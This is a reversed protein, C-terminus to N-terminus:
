DQSWKGQRPWFKDDGEDDAERVVHSALARLASGCADRMEQEPFRSFPSAEDALRRPSNRGPMAPRDAPLSNPRSRSESFGSVVRRGQSARRGGVCYRILFILLVLSTVLRTTRATPRHPHRRPLRGRLSSRAANPSCPTTSHLLRKRARSSWGPSCIKSSSSVGGNSWSRTGGVEASKEIAARGGEDSHMSVPKTRVERASHGTAGRNYNENGMPASSSPTPQETFSRVPAEYHAGPSTPQPNFFLANRAALPSAVFDVDKPAGSM